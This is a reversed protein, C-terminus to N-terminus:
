WEWAIGSFLGGYLNNFEARVSSSGGLDILQQKTPKGPREFFPLQKYRWILKPKIGLFIVEVSFNFVQEHFARSDDVLILQDDRTGDPLMIFSLEVPRGRMLPKKYWFCHKLGNETDESKAVTGSTPIVKAPISSSIELYDVNDMLPILRYRERTEIWLRDRVLTVIEISEQLAANHMIPTGTPLPASTYNGTLLRLALENIASNEREAITDVKRDIMQGFQKRRDTLKPINTFDPAIAFAAMLSEAGQKDPLSDIASVLRAKITEFDQEKGGIARLFVDAKKFVREPKFGADRRLYFLDTILDEFLGNKNM